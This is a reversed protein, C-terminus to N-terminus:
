PKENKRELEALRATIAAEGKCIDDLKDTLKRLIDAVSEDPRHGESPATRDHIMQRTAATTALETSIGTAMSEGAYQVVLSSHWRGM